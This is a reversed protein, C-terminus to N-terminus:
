YITVDYLMIGVRSFCEGFADICNLIGSSCADAVLLLDLDERIV